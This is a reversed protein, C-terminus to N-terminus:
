ANRSEGETAKNIAERARDDIATADTGPQGLGPIDVAGWHAVMAQLADLLDPAADMLRANADTEAIEALAANIEKLTNFHFEGKLEVLSDLTLAEDKSIVYTRARTKKVYLRRYGSLGEIIRTTGYVGRVTKIKM